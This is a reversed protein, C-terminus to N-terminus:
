EKFYEMYKEKDTPSLKELDDIFYFWPLRFKELNSEHPEYWDITGKKLENRLCIGFSCGCFSESVLKGKDLASELSKHLGPSIYAGEVRWHFCYEKPCEYKPPKKYPEWINM